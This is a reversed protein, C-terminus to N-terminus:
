TQVVSCFNVIAFGKQSVGEKLTLLLVMRRLLRLEQFLQNFVACDVAFICRRGTIEEDRTETAGNRAKPGRHRFFSVARKGAGGLKADGLLLAVEIGYQFGQQCQFETGLSYPASM